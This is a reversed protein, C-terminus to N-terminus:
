MHPGPTSSCPPSRCAARREAHVALVDHEVIETSSSAMVSCVTASTTAWAAAVLQNRNRGRRRTASATATMASRSTPATSTMVSSRSTAPMKESRSRSTRTTCAPRSGADVGSESTIVRSTRKTDGPVVVSAASDSICTSPKRCRSTISPARTYPRTDIRSRTKWVSAGHRPGSRLRPVGHAARTRRWSGPQRGGISTSDHLGSISLRREGRRRRTSWASPAAASAVPHPATRRRAAADFEAARRHARRVRTFIAPDAGQRLPRPPRAGHRRLHARRHRDVPHRGVAVIRLQRSEVPVAASAGNASDASVNATNASARSTLAAVPRRM